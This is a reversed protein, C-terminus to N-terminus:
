NSFRKQATDGCLNSCRVVEIPIHSTRGSDLYRLTKHTTGVRTQVDSRIDEVPM